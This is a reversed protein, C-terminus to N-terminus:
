SSIPLFGFGALVFLVLVWTKGLVSGFEFTFFTCSGMSAQRPLELVSTLAASTSAVVHECKWDDSRQRNKVINQSSFQGFEFM